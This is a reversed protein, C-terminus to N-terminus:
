RNKQTSTFVGKYSESSSCRLRISKVKKPNHIMTLFGMGHNKSSGDMVFPLIKLVKDQDGYRDARSLLRGM